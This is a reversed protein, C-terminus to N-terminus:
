QGKEIIEFDNLDMHPGGVFAAGVDVGSDGAARPKSHRRRTPSSAPSAKARTAPTPVPSPAPAPVTGSTPATAPAGPRYWAHELLLLAVGFVFLLLTWRAVTPPPPPPLTAATAANGNLLRSLTELSFWDRSKLEQSVPARTLSRFAEQIAQMTDRERGSCHRLLGTPRSPPISQLLLRPAAVSQQMNVSDPSDIM